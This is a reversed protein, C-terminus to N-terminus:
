AGDKPRVQIPRFSDVPFSYVSIGGEGALTLVEERNDTHYTGWYYLKRIRYQIMLQMCRICPRNLVFISAGVAERPNVRSFANVEAHLTRVCHNDEMKCGVEICHPLGYPAGNYGTGLIRYDEDAVLAATQLRHCTARRALASLIEYYVEYWSPRESM